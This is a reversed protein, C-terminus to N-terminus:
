WDDNANLQVVDPTKEAEHIRKSAIEFYNDDMEIGIFKRDLNVCAVGTTGSGMTFDLVTEDEHTYTKVLYEMLAVPKQTPHSMGDRKSDIDFLIVNIPNKYWQEAEPKRILKNKTGKGFQEGNTSISDNKRYSKKFEEPTRKIMQPNYTAQLKYFVSINEFARMPQKKALFNGTPINKQWIWDYKYDEINSMRLSSSFPEAGFLVIVGNPKIVRKLEVWMLEFDIVSDWKCGTTGYPPDCLVMDVSGDPIEKMRDLCDGKMLNIM